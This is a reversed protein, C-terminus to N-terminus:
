SIKPHYFRHSGGSTPQHRRIRTPCRSHLCRGNITRPLRSSDVAITAEVGPLVDKYIENYDNAGPVSYKVFEGQLNGKVKVSLGYIPKQYLTQPKENLVHVGLDVEEQLIMSESHKNWTHIVLKADTEERIALVIAKGIIHLLPEVIHITISQLQSPQFVEPELAFKMQELAASIKPYIELSYATPTLGNANRTFLPDDLDERLQQLVKSVFSQSRGIQNATEQTSHTKMLVMFVQLANLDKVLM